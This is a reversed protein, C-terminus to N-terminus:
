ASTPDPTFRDLHAARVYSVATTVGLGFVRMLQVPEATHHAEDLIRDTRLQRATIGLQRFPAGLGYRSMPVQEHATLRTILLHPTLSLPWREHRTRLWEAMLMLHAVLADSTFTFPLGGREVAITGDAADYHGLKLARLDEIGLAHVAALEVILRARPDTLRDLM